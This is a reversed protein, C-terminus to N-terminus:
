AAQAEESYPMHERRWDAAAKAAEEENDFYGIFKFKGDLMARAMWKGKSRDWGVGRHRSSGRSARGRNQANEANTSVRLNSRRNDLRDRNRHDAQKGDGHTLGLIDRHMLHVRSVGGRLTGRQAYGGRHLTWRCSLVDEADAADIWALAVVRGHRRVPVATWAPM